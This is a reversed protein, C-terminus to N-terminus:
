FGAVPDFGGQTIAQKKAANASDQAKRTLHKLNAMRRTLTTETNALQGSELESLVKADPTDILKELKTVLAKYDNAFQLSKQLKQAGEGSASKYQQTLFDSFQDYATQAEGPTSTGQLFEHLKRAEPLHKSIEPNHKELLELRSFTSSIASQDKSNLNGDPSAGFRNSLDALLEWGEDVSSVRSQQVSRAIGNLM